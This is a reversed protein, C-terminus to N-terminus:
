VLKGNEDYEACNVYIQLAESKPHRSIAARWASEIKSGQGCKVCIYLFIKELSALHEIGGVLSREQLEMAGQGLALLIELRQLQPMAAPEFTLSPLEGCFTLSPLEGCFFKFCKLSHFTQPHIIINNEPITKARLQLYILCPLQALVQVDDSPLEQVELEVHALRDAHGIWNPVKPMTVGYLSFRQLHRPQALCNSWFQASPARASSVVEFALNRLNSNGLKNLSAALITTKCNNEVGDPRSYNYMMVQLNRLNTLESLDRICDTSNSGFDFWFLDRLNRLKSLGNKIIVCGPLSLHRLSSLSSFDSIQESPNDLWPQSMNLTMLHKLKGFKKPLKIRFGWVRLYRLLFLHNIASVDLCVFHMSFSREM